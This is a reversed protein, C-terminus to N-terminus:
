FGHGDMSCNIIIVFYSSFSMFCLKKETKLYDLKENLLQYDRLQSKPARVNM